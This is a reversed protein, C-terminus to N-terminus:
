NEKKVRIFGLNIGTITAEDDDTDSFEIVKDKRKDVAAIVVNLMDGFSRLRRKKVLPAVAPKNEVPVAALVAPKDAHPAIVPAAALATQTTASDRKIINQQPLTAVALVPQSVTSVPQQKAGVVDPTRKPVIIVNTKKVQHLVAVQNNTVPLAKPLPIIPQKTITVPITKPHNIALRNTVPKVVEGKHTIFLVGAGILVIIGAAISLFPVVKKRRGGGLERNIGHWVAKSPEMEFGELKQSFLKDFERDQMDM